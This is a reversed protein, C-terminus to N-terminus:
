RNTSSVLSQAETTFVVEYFHSDLPALEAVKKKVATFDPDKGAAELEERSRWQIYNIVRSGDLSKHVSISLCGPHKLPMDKNEVLLDVLRQQEEPKVRFINIATIYGSQESITIM